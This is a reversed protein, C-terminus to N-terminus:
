KNGLKKFIKLLEASEIHAQASRDDALRNISHSVAVSLLEVERVTLSIVMVVKHWDPHQMTLNRRQQQELRGNLVCEQYGRLKGYATESCIADGDPGEHQEARQRAAIWGMRKDAAEALVGRGCAREQAM